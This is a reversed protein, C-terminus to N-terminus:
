SSSVFNLVLQLNNSLEVSIKRYEGQKRHTPLVILLRDIPTRQIFCSFKLQDCPDNLFVHREPQMRKNNKQRCFEASMM